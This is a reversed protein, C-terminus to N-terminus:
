MLLICVLQYQKVISIVKNYHAPTAFNASACSKPEQEKNLTPELGMAQVVVGLVEEKVRHEISKKNESM